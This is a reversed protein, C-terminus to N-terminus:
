IKEFQYTASIRKLTMCSIWRFLTYSGSKLLGMEPLPGSCVNKWSPICIALLCMFFHEVNSIMLSICILVVIVPPERTACRNLIRRGICLVHTRARTWSSGVHRPAVFGMCWLQQAQARSGALWLQQAWTDCSSFGVCRSGVSQLLLLWRLSFGVCWLSSYGWSAVVLSLRRAAVFVWHLWLYIFAYIFLKKLKNFFLCLSM